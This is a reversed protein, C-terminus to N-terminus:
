NNKAGQDIWATIKALEATSLYPGGLPMRNGGPYPGTTGTIQWLVSGKHNGAKIIPGSVINGGKLLGQYTGLDLNALHTAIHCAACHATFIPEIDKSFSLNTTPASGSNAQQQQKVWAAFDKPTMVYLKAYMEPHGVGCFEACILRYQGVRITKFHMETPYGPVADQKVRFEPVWFSHIVDHAHLRVTVEGLPMHCTGVETIGYKPHDCEWQFQSAQVNIIYAQKPIAVIDVYVKFSMATLVILFIVPIVSWVIELRTNGHIDSGLADEPEDKRRRYHLCFYLLFGQVILFVAVSAVLMFKFLFDISQAHDTAEPLAGTLPTVIIWASVVVFIVVLIASVRALNM